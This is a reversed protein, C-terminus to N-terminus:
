GTIMSRKPDFMSPSDVKNEFIDSIRKGGFISPLIGVGNCGLNYLLVPNHPESGILRVGSTTYGMLGHWSFVYETEGSPIHEYNARLFGDLEQKINEDYSDERSYTATDPLAQDLGGICVLNHQGHAHKTHPRRTLYFYPADESSGQLTFYSIAIPDHDLPEIYGAMYGVKGHLAHHFRTDVNPGAQNVIEFNEFGNTCLVVREARVEHGLAQLTSTDKYLTVTSVPTEEYLSFRDKYANLLYLVVEESFIASNMCGKQYSIVATYADNKTQLLQLIDERPITAYLHVYKPPIKKIYPADEAILINELDLRGSKERLYNNELHGVVQEFSCCGAHGTFKHIPSSLKIEHHMEDLLNWASEIAEQGRAALDLGYEEVLSSFPREFYSAVQGANHGTAGHAVKDAELLVISKETYKLLFYATSVGAIGGGVIVVDADVNEHLPIASRKRNLQHIWPSVTVM